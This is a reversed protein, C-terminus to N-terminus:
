LKKIEDKNKQLAEAIADVKVMNVGIGAVKAGTAAIFFMLIAHLALNIIPILDKTDAGVQGYQTNVNLNLNSVLAAPAQAGTFVHFMSIVAFVIMGLGVLTLLYGFIKNM